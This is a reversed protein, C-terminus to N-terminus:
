EAVDEKVVDEQVLDEQVLDEQVLGEQVLGEQVVNEQVVNEEQELDVYFLVGQRNGYCELNPCALISIPYSLM